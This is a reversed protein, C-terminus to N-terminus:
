AKAHGYQAQLYATTGRSVQRDGMGTRDSAPGCLSLKLLCISTLLVPKLLCISALSVLLCRVLEFHYHPEYWVCTREVLCKMSEDQLDPHERLAQELILEIRNLQRPMKAKALARLGRLSPKKGRKTTPVSAIEAPSTGFVALLREIQKQSMKNVEVYSPPKGVHYAAGDMIVKVARGTEKILKVIAPVM